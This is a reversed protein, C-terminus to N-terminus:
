QHRGPVTQQRGNSFHSKPNGKEWPLQVLEYLRRVETGSLFRWEGTQLSELKLFAFSVRKLRSVSYGLAEMMRRVQRNRGEHITIELWTHGSSYRVNAVTAPATLGDELQVGRELRETAARDLTGRVRVLYTKNVHFSPHMLRHALAGDDTLLLAGETTMDLRGVTFFRGPVDAILSFVVARGEPDSRTCTYGSPKNLLIYRKQSAPRALPRGCVLIRQSSPDAKDGLHAVLGDVTVEGREIWAEAERRSALGAAAIIKQLREKM